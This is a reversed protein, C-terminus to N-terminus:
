MKLTFFRRWANSYTIRITLTGRPSKESLLFVYGTESSVFPNEKM